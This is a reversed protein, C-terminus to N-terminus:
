TVLWNIAPRNLTPKTNSLHSRSSIFFALKYWYYYKVIMKHALMTFKWHRSAINRTTWSLVQSFNQLQSKFTPWQCGEWGYLSNPIKASKSDADFTPLQIGVQDGRVTYPIQSKLPNPSLKLLQFNSVGEEGFISIEAWSKVKFNKLQSKFTVM